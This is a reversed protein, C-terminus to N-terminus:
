SRRRARGGVAVLLFVVLSVALVVGVEILLGRQAMGYAANALARVIPDPVEGLLAQRAGVLVAALAIAGLAWGTLLLMTAGRRQRALLVSLLGLAAVAAPAWPGARDLASYVLRASELDDAYVIPFTVTPTFDAALNVGFPLLAEVLTPVAIPVALLVRGDRDVGSPEQGEMVSTFEEHLSRMSDAWVTEMQPSSVVRTAGERVVPVVLQEAAASLPVETRLATVAGETLATQLSPTSILPRTEEVFVDTQTAIGSVWLAVLAVPLLVVSLLGFVASLFPSGM